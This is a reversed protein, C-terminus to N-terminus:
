LMEEEFTSCLEELRERDVAELEKLKTRADLDLYKKISSEIKETLVPITLADLEVSM